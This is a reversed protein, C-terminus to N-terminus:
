EPDGLSSGTPEGEGEGSEMAADLEEGFDEGMEEGMRKMMRAMSKPDNEDLGGYNSPDALAEMRAEESKPAAFRSMIRELRTGNCSQCVEPPRSNYSLVLVSLRKGCDICRYEYIPM